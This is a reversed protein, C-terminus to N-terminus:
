IKTVIIMVAPIYHFGVENKIRYFTKGKKKNPLKSKIVKISRKFSDTGQNMLIEEKKQVKEWNKPQEQPM